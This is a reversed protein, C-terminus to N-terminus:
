QLEAGNERFGRHLQIAQAQIPVHPQLQRLLVDTTRLLQPLAENPFQGVRLVLGSKRPDLRPQVELRRLLDEFGQPPQAPRDLLQLVGAFDGERHEGRLVRDDLLQQLVPGVGLTHLRKTLLVKAVDVRECPAYVARVEGKCAGPPVGGRVGVELLDGALLRKPRAELRREPLAHDRGVVRVDLHPQRSLNGVVRSEDGNEVAVVIVRM